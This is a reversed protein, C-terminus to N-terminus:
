SIAPFPSVAPMVRRLWRQNRQVPFHKSVAVLWNCVTIGSCLFLSALPMYFRLYLRFILSEFWNSMLLLSLVTEILQPLMSSLKSSSNNNHSSSALLSANVKSSDESGTKTENQVFSTYSSIHMPLNLLSKRPV